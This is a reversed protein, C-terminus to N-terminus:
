YILNTFYNLIFGYALKNPSIKIVISSTNNNLRLIVLLANLWQALNLM